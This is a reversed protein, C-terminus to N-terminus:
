RPLRHRVRVNPCGIYGLTPAFILRPMATHTASFSVRCSVCRAQLIRVGTWTAKLIWVVVVGCIVEYYVTKTIYIGYEGIKNKM